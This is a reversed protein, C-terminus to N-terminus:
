WDHTASISNRSDLELQWKGNQKMVDVSSSDWRWEGLEESRLCEQVVSEAYKLFDKYYREGFKYSCEIDVRWWEELGSAAREPSIALSRAQFIQVDKIRDAYRVPRVTGLLVARAAEPLQATQRAIETQRALELAVGRSEEAGEGFYQSHGKTIRGFEDMGLIQIAATISSFRHGGGCTDCRKAFQRSGTHVQVSGNPNYEDPPLYELETIYEFELPGGHDVFSREQRTPAKYFVKDLLWVLGLAPLGIVLWFGLTIISLFVSIIFCGLLLSVLKNHLSDWFTEPPPPDPKWHCYPRACFDCKDLYKFPRQVSCVGCTDIPEDEQTIPAEAM